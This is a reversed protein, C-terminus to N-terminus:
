TEIFVAKGDSCYKHKMLKRKIIYEPTKFGKTDEIVLIGDQFYTFDAIYSCARENNMIKNTFTQAPILEFKQQTKLDSIKGARQLMQLLNCRNAEKKSDHLHGALCHAKKSHYKRGM